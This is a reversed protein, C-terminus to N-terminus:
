TKKNTDMELVGEVYIRENYLRPVKNQGGMRGRKQMWHLFTGEGVESLTLQMLTTNKFRKAEYDSNVRQLAEDLLRTFREIDEPRRRFEVVWEHSGKKRGEMFVPAVTYEAIEAGTRDCAARIATEANEIILEEGFVNIFHKTRGTIRIRYPSTSTFEVTDGILYRWLGNSTSIIMAYNVGPKVDELPVAKSADDFHSMPLFEYFIRYDLMLLMDDRLPDDGIAFFGESANYTEMYKMRESPFIRRYQERYPKFSVGGHVFLEMKPWVEFINSKGTYELIRNMMVLNWSPVGAFNSVNERTTEKCIRRIKEEFDPILAVETSPVKRWELLKPTNDILIASLDGTLATEGEREIKHSGGLTLTKGSFVESEPYLSAFFAVTDKPGQMHIDQLGADSVPIFKSKSGTTGSSKAFWRIIGPWTVSEEGQRARDILPSFAEYDSVPIRQQFQEISRINRMRCDSGFHTDAGEKLLRTLQEQQVQAPNRRFFDIESRRYAFLFNIIHTSLPM